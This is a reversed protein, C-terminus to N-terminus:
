GASLGEAMLLCPKSILSIKECDEVLVSCNAHAGPM